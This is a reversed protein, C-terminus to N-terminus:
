DLITDSDLYDFSVEEITMSLNDITVIMMILTSMDNSRGNENSENGSSMHWVLISIGVIGFLVSTISIQYKIM